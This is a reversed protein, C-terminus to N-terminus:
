YVIEDNGKVTIQATQKTYSMSDKCMGTVSLVSNKRTISRVECTSTPALIRGAEIIAAQAFKNIPHRYAWGNGHREFLKDCDSASTAWAGLLEREIDKASISPMCALSGVLFLLVLTARRNRIRM